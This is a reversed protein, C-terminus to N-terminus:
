IIRTQSVVGACVVRVHHLVMDLRLRPQDLGHAIRDHHPGQSDDGRFHEPAALNRPAISIGACVKGSGPSSVLLSSFTVSSNRRCGACALALSKTHAFGHGQTRSPKAM